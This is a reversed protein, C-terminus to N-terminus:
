VARTGSTTYATIPVERGRLTEVVVVRAMRVAAGEALRCGASVSGGQHRGGGGQREQRAPKEQQPAQQAEARHGVQDGVRHECPELGADPQDDDQVLKGLEQPDM